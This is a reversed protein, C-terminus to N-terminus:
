TNPIISTGENPLNAFQRLVAIRSEIPPHTDFLDFLGPPNEIMMAQVGSPADQFSANGSIKELASILAEPRKTLDVAGADALYERRRSLAFRLILSIAYGVSLLIAAVIIALGAGKNDRRSGSSFRMHRWMLEALFSLM